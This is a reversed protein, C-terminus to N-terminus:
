IFSPKTYFGNSENKYYESATARDRIAAGLDILSQPTDGSFEIIVRTSDDSYRLDDDDFSLETVLPLDTVLIDTYKSSM